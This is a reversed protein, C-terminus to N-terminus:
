IDKRSKVAQTSKSCLYRLVLYLDAKLDEKTILMNRLSILSDKHKIAYKMLIDDLYKILMEKSKQSNEKLINKIGKKIETRTNSM